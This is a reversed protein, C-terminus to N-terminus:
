GFTLILQLVPLGMCTLQLDEWWLIYFRIESLSKWFELFSEDYIDM